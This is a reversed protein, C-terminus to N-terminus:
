RGEIGSFHQLMLWMDKLSKDIQSKYGEYWGILETGALSPSCSEVNCKTLNCFWQFHPLKRKPVDWRWLSSPPLIRLTTSSGCKCKIPSWYEHGILKRQFRQNM